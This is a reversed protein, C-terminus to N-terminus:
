KGGEETLHEIKRIMEDILEKTSEYLQISITAVHSYETNVTLEGLKNKAKQIIDM